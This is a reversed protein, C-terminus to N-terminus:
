LFEIQLSILEINKKNFVFIMDVNKAPSESILELNWVFFLLLMVCRTFRDLLCNQGLRLSLVLSKM